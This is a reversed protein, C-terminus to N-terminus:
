PADERPVNFDDATLNPIPLGLSGFAQLAQGALHRVEAWRPDAALAEPSHMWNSRHEEWEVVADHDMSRIRDVVAAVM